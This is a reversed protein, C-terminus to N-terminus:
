FIYWNVILIWHQCLFVQIRSPPTQSFEINEMGKVEKESQVIEQPYLFRINQSSRRFSKNKKTSTKEDMSELKLEDTKSEDTMNQVSSVAEVTADKWEKEQSSYCQLNTGVTWNQRSIANPLMKLNSSTLDVSKEKQVNRHVWYRVKAVKDKIETIEGAKWENNSVSFVLIPLGVVFDETNTAKPAQSKISEQTM